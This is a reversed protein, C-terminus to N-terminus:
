EGKLLELFVKDFKLSMKGPIYLTMGYHIDKIFNQLQCLKLRVKQSAQIQNSSTHKKGNSYILEIDTEKNYYKLLHRELLDIRNSKWPEEFSTKSTGVSCVHYIYTDISPNLNLQFLLLRNADIITSGLELPDRMNDIVINDLSSPAAIVNVEIGKKVLKNLRQTLTVGLMPHGQILISINHFQNLRNLIHTFIEEYNDNDKADNKYLSDIYEVKKLEYKTAFELMCKESIQFAIVLDSEKIIRLGELTVQELDAVGVGVLNLKM